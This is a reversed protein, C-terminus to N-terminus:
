NKVTIMEEWEEGIAKPIPCALFKVRVDPKLSEAKEMVQNYATELLSIDELAKYLYYNMEYGINKLLKVQKKIEKM